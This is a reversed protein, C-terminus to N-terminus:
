GLSVNLNFSVKAKQVQILLVRVMDGVIVSKLPQRLNEEYQKLVVTMDGQRVRQALDILEDEPLLNQDRALSCVM